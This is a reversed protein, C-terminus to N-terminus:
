HAMASAAAGSWFAYRDRHAQPVAQMEEAFHMMLPGAGGDYVPWKALGPENPDRTKTFNAWYSVMAQSIQLDVPEWPNPQSKLTGFVYEIECAHRAGLEKPSVGNVKTDPAVPPTRDFVYGYVPAQGTKNQMELWEWTIYVIFLDSALDVASKRAEEDNSAPYLKLVEAARDDFRTRLQQPFTETTPKEKAYVVAWSAEEANWGALLPVHAQKGEAFITAVDKPLVYGDVSPWFQFSRDKQAASLLEEASKARLSALDKAGLSEAFKAGTKETEGLTQMSSGAPPRGFFAGSEGIAGRFLGKALPSAMLASVSLSGASEGAITVKEPDGGFAAINQKVWHLGAIQDILGYDGSAHVGSTKTLDPHSFFGFVGLRYNVSVVIIGKKALNEGDYRPESSSGAQFGGGYFWVMVALRDQASKAPTWVNLYLCDESMPKDARDRFIMDSFVPAQMCRPGFESAKVVGKWPRVPEPARWRLEGVPPAAFPIGRFVRVGPSAANMGEVFGGDTKVQDNAFAGGAFLTVLLGAFAAVQATGRARNM